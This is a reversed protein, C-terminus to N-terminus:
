WSSGPAALRQWSSGPAARLQWSSGPAALFQLYSDPAALFRRPSGTVALHRWSSSGLIALLQLPKCLNALLHGFGSPGLIRRLLERDAHLCSESYMDNQKTLHPSGRLSEHSAGPLSRSIGSPQNRSLCFSVFLHGVFTVCRLPHPRLFISFLVFISLRRLPVVLIRLDRQLCVVCAPKWCLSDKLVFRLLFCLPLVGSLFPSFLGPAALFQLSSVRTTLVRWGLHPLCISVCVRKLSIHRHESQWLNFNRPAEQPM